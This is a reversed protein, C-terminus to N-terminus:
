IAASAAIPMTSFPIPIQQIVSEVQLFTGCGRHRRAAVFQWVIM